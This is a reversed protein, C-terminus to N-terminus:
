FPYGIGINVAARNKFDWLDNLQYDGLIFRQGLPYAPDVMKYAVDTRLVLFSFDFRLGFGAGVAIEKPFTKLRFVGDDNTGNGYGDTEKEVTESNWLWINGADIFLAYDIFGVLDRRFEVSAEM